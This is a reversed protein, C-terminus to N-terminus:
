VLSFSLVPTFSDWRRDIALCAVALRVDTVALFGLLGAGFGTLIGARGAALAAVFTTTFGRALTLGAALGAGFGTLFSWGILDILGAFVALGTFATFIAFTATLGAM